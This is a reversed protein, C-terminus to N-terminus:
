NYKLNHTYRTDEPINQGAPQHTLISKELSLVEEMKKALCDLNWSVQINMLMAASDESRM